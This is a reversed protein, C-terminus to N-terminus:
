YPHELDEASYRHDRVVFVSSSERKWDKFRMTDKGILRRVLGVPLVLGYFLIALIIKSIVAGLATSLRFWIFAFPKFAPPWTMAIVLFVVALLVLFPQKWVLYCILSILVLALGADKCNEKTLNKLDTKM